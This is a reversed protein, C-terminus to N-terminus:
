GAKKQKMMETEMVRDVKNIIELHYVKALIPYSEELFVEITHLTQKIQDDTLGSQKLQSVLKNM